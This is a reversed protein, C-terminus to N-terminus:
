CGGQPLREFHGGLGRLQIWVWLSVEYLYSEEVHLVITEARNPIEQRHIEHSSPIFLMIIAVSLLEGYVMALAIVGGTSTGVIWDFLDTIKRQTREELEMLVQLQVLGKIGGGDLCLIRSGGRIGFGTGVKKKPKPQTRNFLALERQQMVLAYADDAGGITASVSMRRVVSIELENYLKRIGNDNMCESIKENANLRQTKKPPKMKQAFSYLRPIKKQEHCETMKQTGGKAGLELLIREISSLTGDSIVLDLPTFQNCGPKNIDAGFVIATKVCM